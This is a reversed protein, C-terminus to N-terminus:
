KERGEINKQLISIAKKGQANRLLDLAEEIAKEARELREYYELSDM